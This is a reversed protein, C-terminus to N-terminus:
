MGYRYETLMKLDTNIEAKRGLGAEVSDLGILDTALVRDVLAIDEPDYPDFVPAGDIRTGLIAMKAGRLVPRFDVNSMIASNGYLYAHSFVESATRLVEPSGTANLLAVGEPRLGNELFRMFEQSLLSTVGSRWHFTSNVIIVDYQGVNRQLWQRGDGFHIIVRSDDLLPAVDPYRAILAPYGPNIEVVDVQEVGAFSTVVRTWSGGSLGIVLIKAPARHAAMVAYVRDIRNSNNRLDVNIRGDYANGGFVIDGAPDAVTHIVGEKRELLWKVPRGHTAEAVSKMLSPMAGPLWLMGVILLAMGAWRRVRWGALWIAAALTTAAVVLFQQETSLVDMGWLTILLPGLTCGIVNSFYVRSFSGGKWRVADNSGLHHVVPFLASKLASTLLVLPLLVLILPLVDVLRAFLLLACVDTMASLLLILAGRNRIQLTNGHCLRRGLQAGLAVGLLYIALVTAFMAPLGQSAFGAVRIWLVELMLGAAGVLLAVGRPLWTM